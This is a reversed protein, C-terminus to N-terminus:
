HKGHGKGHGHGCRPGHRHGHDQDPRGRGRRANAPGSRGGRRLEESSSTPEEITEQITETDASCAVLFVLGLGAWGITVGSRMTM